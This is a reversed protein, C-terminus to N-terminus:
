KSRSVAFVGAFILVTAAIKILGFTALGLVTALIASTVPQFYSYMSIVTPKLLRQSFPILLYGIFTAFVIIYAISWWIAPTFAAFNCSLLRPLLPLGFTVTSAIFMWKMLTYPSYRNIINRFLVYYLAACLQAILCMTNGFMPNIAKETSGQDGLVMMLAGGLGLAVGLGKLWTIPMSIILAACIMTFVPTLTSMISADVPSTFQIGYIYLGQNITIMLFSAVVIQVWDKREIKEHRPAVSEPLFFGAVVFVLTAGVIRIVSLTLGDTVGSELINKSLPSMAGWCFNAFLMAIHGSWANKSNYQNVTSDM